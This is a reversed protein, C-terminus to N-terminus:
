QVHDGSDAPGIRAADEDVAPIDRDEGFRIPILETLRGQNSESLLEVPDRRGDFPKWGAHSTRPAADRLAKGKAAREDASLYPTETRASGQPEKKKSAKSMKSRENGPDPM